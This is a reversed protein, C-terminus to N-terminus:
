IVETNDSRLGTNFHKKFVQDPNEEQCLEHPVDRTINRLKAFHRNVRYFKDLETEIAHEDWGLFNSVLINKM